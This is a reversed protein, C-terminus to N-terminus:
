NVLLNEHQATKSLYRFLYCRHYFACISEKYM